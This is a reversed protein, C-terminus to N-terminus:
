KSEYYIVLDKVSELTEFIHYNKLLVEELQVDTLYQEAHFMGFLTDSVTVDGLDIAKHMYYLLRTSNVEIEMEPYLKHPMMELM